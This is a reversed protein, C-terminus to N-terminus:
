WQAVGKSLSYDWDSGILQFMKLAVLEFGDWSVVVQDKFTKFHTVTYEWKSSGM